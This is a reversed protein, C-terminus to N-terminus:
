KLFAEINRKGHLVRYIRITKGTKFTKYFVLYDNVIMRRYTKNNEYEVYMYPNQALGEIARELDDLFRGSTGPYFQSLYQCIGDIDEIARKLLKVEYAM